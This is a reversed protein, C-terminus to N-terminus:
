FRAHEADYTRGRWRVERHLFRWALSRATISAWVAATLPQTVAAWLPYKLYMGLVARAVVTLGFAIGALTVDRRPLAVGLAAAALVVAPLSWALSTFLTSAALLVGKVGSFVYALNKTFGDFIQRFGRYM